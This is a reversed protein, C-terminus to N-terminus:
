LSTDRCLYLDRRHYNYVAKNEQEKIIKSFTKETFFDERVMELHVVLHTKLSFLSIKCNEKVESFNLMRIEFLAISVTISVTNYNEFM